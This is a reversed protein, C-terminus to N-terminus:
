GLQIRLFVDYYIAAQQANASAALHIRLYQVGDLWEMIFGMDSAVLSIQTGASLFSIVATTWIDSLTAAYTLSDHCM